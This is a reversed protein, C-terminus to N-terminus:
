ENAFLLLLYENDVLEARVCELFGDSPTGGDEHCRLRVSESDSLPLSCSCVGITGSLREDKDAGVERLVERAFEIVDSLRRTRLCSASVSRLFVSSLFPIPFASIMKLLSGTRFNALRYVMSLVGLSLWVDPQHLCASIESEQFWRTPLM